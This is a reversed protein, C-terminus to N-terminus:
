GQMRVMNKRAHAACVENADGMAERCAMPTQRFVLTNADTRGAYQDWSHVYHPGNGYKDCLLRFAETDRPGLAAFEADM